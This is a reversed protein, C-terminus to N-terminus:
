VHLVNMTVSDDYSPSSTRVGSGIFTSLEVVPAVISKVVIRVDNHHSEGDSNVNIDVVAHDTHDERVIFSSSTSLQQQQQQRISRTIVVILYLGLPIFPVVILTWYSRKFGLEDGFSDFIFLTYFSFSIFIIIWMCNQIMVPDGAENLEKSIQNIYFLDSSYKSTICIFRGVVVKYVWLSSVLALLSVAGIPPFVVGYSMLIGVLGLLSVLLQDAYITFDPHHKMIGSAKHNSYTTSQDMSPDISTNISPDISTDITLDSAQNISLDNTSTYSVISPNTPSQSFPLQKSLKDNDSSAKSSTSHLNTEAASTATPTHICDYPKHMLPLFHDILRYIRSQPSAKRHIFLLASLGIPKLFTIMMGVYVLTAGYDKVFESSCVYSYSFPPHYSTKGNVDAYVICKGTYQVNTYFICDNYVYTSSVESSPIILEYFCNTSITAVAFSPIIINNMLYVYLQLLTFRIMNLRTITAAAVPPTCDQGGESNDNSRNYSTGDDNNRTVDTSNDVIKNCPCNNYGESIRNGKESCRNSNKNHDIEVDHISTTTNSKKKDTASATPTTSLSTTLAAIQSSSPSPVPARDIKTINLVRKAVMKIISPSFNNNWFLKFFSLM